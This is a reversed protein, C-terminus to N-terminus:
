DEVVRQVWGNEPTLGEQPLMQAVKGIASARLYAKIDVAEAPKTAFHSLRAFCEENSVLPRM